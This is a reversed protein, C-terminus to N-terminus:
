SAALKEMEGAIIKLNRISKAALRIEDLAGALKKIESVARAVEVIEDRSRSVTTVDGASENSRRIEPLARYVDQLVVDGDEAIFKDLDPLRKSLEILKDMHQALELIKSTQEALGILTGINQGVRVVHPSNALKEARELYPSFDVVVNWNDADQEFKDSSKHKKNSWLVAQDVLVIQNAEYKKGPQWETAQGIGLSVEGTLSKATVVAKLTGDDNIIKEIRKVAEAIKNGIVDLESDLKQGMAAIDKIDSFATDRKYNTM